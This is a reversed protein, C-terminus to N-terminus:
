IRSAVGLGQMRRVLSSMYRVPIRAMRWFHACILWGPHSVPYISRMHSRQPFAVAALYSLRDRIRGGMIVDVVLHCIPHEADRPAQWLALRDKWSILLCELEDNVFGPVIKGFMAEARRFAFLVPHVLNWRRALQLFDRWQDQTLTRAYYKIDLLWLPRSAGHLAAHCCLHLLMREPSPVLVWGKGVNMRVAGHWFGDDPVTARYRGARFPRAHVDFKVPLQENSHYEVEYYFRPFFDPRLLDEGKSYGIQEFLGCGDLADDPKLMVDIDVMPRLDCRKYVLRSLVSGKLALLDIGAQNFTSAVEEFRAELHLNSAATRASATKLEEILGNPINIDLNKLAQLAFGALGSDCVYLIIGSWRSTALTEPFCPTEESFLGHRLLALALEQDSLRNIPKENLCSVM